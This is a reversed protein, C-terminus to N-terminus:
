YVEVLRLLDLVSDPVVKGRLTVPFVIYRKFPETQDLTAAADSLLKLLSCFNSPRLSLFFQLEDSILRRCLIKSIDHHISIKLSKIQADLGAKLFHNSTGYLAPTSLFEEVKRIELAREDIRRIVDTVSVRGGWPTEPGFSRPHVDKDTNTYGYLGPSVKAKILVRNIESCKPISLEFIDNEFEVQTFVSEFAATLSSIGLQHYELHLDRVGEMEPHSNVIGNYRQSVEFHESSIDLYLNSIDKLLGLSENHSLEGAM